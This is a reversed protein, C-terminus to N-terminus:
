FTEKTGKMIGNNGNILIIMIMAIAAGAIFAGKLGAMTFCLGMIIPGLTQGLRLIMGNVAMFAARYQLPSLSALMGHSVPIILGNACGFLATPLLLLWVNSLFPIALLALVYLLFGTLILQKPPIKKSLTGSFASAFASALSMVAMMLGISLASANFQMKMFFPFYTLFSGYLIMFTALIITFLGLVKKNQFISWTNKLYEGLEQKNKPEPNKLFLLVMVAVPLAMLPLLFPWHWGFGALLGGIVPYGAAGMSLAGSNYGMAENLDSGSYMDGIMTSSLSALSAAGSGQLFRLILLTQFETSFACLSGALAFLLLSPVLVKKRGIRDALIGLVPTFLVGPITFVTILWGVKDATMVMERAIAPFAPTISAVGMVALLTVCFIVQLNTDRYVARAKVPAEIETEIQMLSNYLFHAWMVLRKKTPIKMFQPIIIDIGFKIGPLIL